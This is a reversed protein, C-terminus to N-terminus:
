MLAAMPGDLPLQHIAVGRLSGELARWLARAARADWAAGSHLSLHTIHPRAVEFMDLLMDRQRHTEYSLSLHRVLQLASPPRKRQAWKLPMVRLDDPWRRDLQDQAYPLWQDATKEWKAPFVLACLAEWVQASPPQQLLSRLEGFDFPQATM